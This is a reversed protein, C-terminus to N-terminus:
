WELPKYYKKTLFIALTLSLVFYIMLAIGELKVPVSISFLISWILLGFFVYSILAM